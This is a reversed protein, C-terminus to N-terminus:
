SKIIERARAIVEDMMPETLRGTSTNQQSPHYSCLLAPSLPFLVNHGFPYDGVRSIEGEDKLVALYADCAIRGLALVVKVQPMLNLEQMLWGRCNRLEDPAPKNDPPACHGAATIWADHLKLGDNRDVSTPQSAFGGKHLARYLFDGSRDGTFARGTRNAGHAGPALAVILLRAKLASAFGIRFAITAFTTGFFASAVEVFAIHALAGGASFAGFVAFLVQASFWSGIQFVLLDGHARWASRIRQTM